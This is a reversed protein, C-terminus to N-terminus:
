NGNQFRDYLCPVEKSGVHCWVVVEGLPRRRTAATSVYSARLGSTGEWFVQVPRHQEEIRSDSTNEMCAKDGSSVSTLQTSSTIM